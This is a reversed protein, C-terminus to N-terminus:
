VEGIPDRRQELAQALAVEFGARPPLGLALYGLEEAAADGYLCAFIEPYLANDPDRNVIEQAHAM